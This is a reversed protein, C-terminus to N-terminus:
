HQADIESVSSLPIELPGAILIPGDPGIRMSDVHAVTLTTVPISQGNGDAVDLTFSYGGAPLGAAAEGLDIQQRGPGIPGLERSGVKTGNADFLTLTATAGAGGVDAVATGHGDGDVVVKDAVATVTHGLLGVANANGIAGIMSAGLAAQGELQQSINTLQEVSSFQALQAAFQQGDMPNMPDQSRMQTIFLKLFEDKGLAGGPAAPAQPTSSSSAAPNVSSIM